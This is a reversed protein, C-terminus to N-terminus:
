DLCLFYPGCIVGCKSVKPATNARCNYIAFLKFSTCNQLDGFCNHFQTCLLMRRCTNHLFLHESFNQLNAPRLGAVKIFFPSRCLYKGTFKTSNKLVGKGNEISYRRHSSRRIEGYETQIHSFVSWFFESYPCKEWM